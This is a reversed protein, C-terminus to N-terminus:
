KAADPRAEATPSFFAVTPRLGNDSQISVAGFELRYDPYTDRVFAPIDRADSAQNETAIVLRPQFRRIVESAGALAKLEAGEIDMKILDLRDLGLEVVIRDLTTVPLITVKPPGKAEPRVNLIFSDLASNEWEKMELNEDKDWVGKAVVVVRGDTIEPAFNRRLAEVNEAVPEIAIVKAAGAQLALRTYTGINAGCDAVVSGEPIPGYIEALQEAVLFAVDTNAPAWFRGLSTESQTLSGDTEVIQIRKLERVHGSREAVAARASDMAEAFTCEHCNGAVFSRLARIHQWGALIGILICGVLVLM